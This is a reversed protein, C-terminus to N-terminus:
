RSGFRFAIGTSVRLNNQHDNVANPLRSYVYDVEVLNWVIHRSLVRSVSGGASVAFASKDHVYAYNSLEESGGVLVQGYPTFRRAARYTYRPGFVYDFISISQTTANINNAHAGALDAVLSISRSMNIVLNGGGGNLSFCGCLAPPANAHFYTYDFGLEVRTEEPEQGFQAGARTHQARGSFSIALLMVPVLGRIAAAKVTSSTMDFRM